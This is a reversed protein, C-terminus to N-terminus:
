GKRGAFYGRAQPNVSYGSGARSLIMTPPGSAVRRPGGGMSSAAYVGAITAGIAVAGAALLAATPMGRPPDDSIGCSWDRGGQRRSAVDFAM